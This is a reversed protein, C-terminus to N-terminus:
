GATKGEDEAVFINWNDYMRYRAIIDKKDVGLACNEDVQPCLREIELLSQNDNDSFPRISIISM